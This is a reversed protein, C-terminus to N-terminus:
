RGSLIGDDVLANVKLLKDASRRVEEASLMHFLQQLLTLVSEYVCIRSSYRKKQSLLNRDYPRLNWWTLSM